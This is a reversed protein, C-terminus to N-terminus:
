QFLSINYMQLELYPSPLRLLYLNIDLSLRIQKKEKM